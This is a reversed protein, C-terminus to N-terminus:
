DGHRPVAEMYPKVGYGEEIVKGRLERRSAM